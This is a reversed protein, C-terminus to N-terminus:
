APAEEGMLRRLAAIARPSAGIMERATAAAEEGLLRRMDDNAYLDAVVRSLEDADAVGVGGRGALRRTEAAFNGAHPGWVTVCGHYAAEMMNQGGRPTFSGGIIAVAGLPYLGGLEGLTDLVVADVPARRPLESRRVATLGRSELIKLVAPVREPYRPAVFLKLAPKSKRLAAYVDAVIEEEGEHTSAGILVDDRRKVALAAAILDVVDNLADTECNDYKLNGTVTIRGEPVGMAVYRPAYEVEAACVGKLGQFLPGFLWRARNFGRYGKATLRGNVVAVPVGRRELTYVLNPWFDGEVILFLAPRLARVTSAVCPILDYPLALHHDAAVQKAVHRGGSTFTTLVVDYDPFARRLEAGFARIALAEGVSPAHIWISRRLRPLRFGLRNLFRGRFERSALAPLWGLAFVVGLVFNYFLFALFFRGGFRPAAAAPATSDAPTAM